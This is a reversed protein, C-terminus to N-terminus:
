NDEVGGCCNLHCAYRVCEGQFDLVDGPENVVGEVVILVKEGEEMEKNCKDCTKVGLRANM